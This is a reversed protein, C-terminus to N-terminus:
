KTTKDGRKLWSFTLISDPKVKLEELTLFCYNNVTRKKLCVIQFYLKLKLSGAINKKLYTSTKILFKVLDTLFFFLTPKILKFGVKWGFLFPLIESYVKPTYIIKNYNISKIEANSSYRHWQTLPRPHTLTLM